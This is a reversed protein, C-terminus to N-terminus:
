GDRRRWTENERDRRTTSKSAHSGSRAGVQRLVRTVPAHMARLAHWAAVFALLDRSRGQVTFYAEVVRLLGPVVTPVRIAALYTRDSM